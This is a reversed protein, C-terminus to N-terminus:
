LPSDVVEVLFDTSVLHIIYIIIFGWNSTNNYILSICLERCRFYILTEMYFPSLQERRVIYINEVSLLCNHICGVIWCYQPGMTCIYDSSLFIISTQRKAPALEQSSIVLYFIDSVWWAWTVYMVIYESIFKWDDLWSYRLILPLICTNKHYLTTM